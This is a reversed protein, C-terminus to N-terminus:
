SIANLANKLTNFFSATIAGGSVATSPLTGHGTIDNIATRAQNVITASILTGKSVTTFNYTTLGKYTRFENIRTCFNNWEVATIKIPEGKAITSAWSWNTPRTNEALTVFRKGDTISSGGLWLSQNLQIDAYYVTNPTLGSYTKTLTTANVIYDMDVATASNSYQKVQFRVRENPVFGKVTITVSDSTVADITFTPLANTIQTDMTLWVGNVQVNIAYATSSELNYIQHTMTSGTAILKAGGFEDLDTDYTVDSTDNSLRAYFRVNDGVSLNSVKVDVTRYTYSLIEWSASLTEEFLSKLTVTGSGGGYICVFLYYTKNAVVEATASFASENSDDTYSGIYYSSSTPYGNSNVSYSSNDNIWGITDTGTTTSYFTLTGNVTPTYSYRLVEYAGISVTSANWAGKSTVSYSNEVEKIEGEARIYIDQGGTYTFPNSTSYQVPASTSGIRYVWQTFICGTAPTATFQADGTFGSYSLNADGYKKTYTTAGYVVIQTTDIDADNFYCTISYAM